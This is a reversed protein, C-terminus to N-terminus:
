KNIKKLIVWKYLIREKLIRNLKCLIKGLFGSFNKFLFYPEFDQRKKSELYKKYNLTSNNVFGKYGRWYKFTEQVPQVRDIM